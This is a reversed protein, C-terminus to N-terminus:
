DLILDGERADDCVDLRRQLNQHARERQPGEEVAEEGAHALHAALVREVGLHADAHARRGRALRPSLLHEVAELLRACGGRGRCVCARRHSPRAMERAAESGARKRKRDRICM